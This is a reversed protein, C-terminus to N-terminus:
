DTKVFEEVVKADVGKPLEAEDYATKLDKLEQEDPSESNKLAYYAKYADMKAVVLANADADGDAIVKKYAAKAAEHALYADKIEKYKEEGLAKPVPATNGDADVTMEPVAELAAKKAKTVEKAADL